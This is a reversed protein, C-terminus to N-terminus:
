AKLWDEEVDELGTGIGHCQELTGGEQQGIAGWPPAMTLAPQRRGPAGGPSEWGHTRSPAGGDQPPGLTVGEISGSAGAGAAVSGVTSGLAGVVLESLRGDELDGPGRSGYHVRDSPLEPRSVALPTCGSIRMGYRLSANVEEGCVAAPYTEFSLQPSCWVTVEMPVHTATEVQSLWRTSEAGGGGAVAAGTTGTTSAGPAGLSDRRAGSAAATSSAALAPSRPARTSGPSAARPGVSSSRPGLRTLRPGPQPGLSPSRVALLKPSAASTIARPSMMAAAAEPSSARRAAGSGSLYNPDPSLVAPGVLPSPPGPPLTAASGLGSGGLDRLGLKREVFHRLPRCVPVEKVLVAQWEGTDGGVSSSTPSSGSSARELVPKGTAPDGSSASPHLSYYALTGARTAVCLRPGAPRQSSAASQRSAAGSVFGCQPMLGEQLVFSGLKVRTSAKILVPAPPVINSSALGGFSGASRPSTAVGFASARPVTPALQATSVDGHHRGLAASHLPPLQFIHTTGKASSVAVHQGDESVTIDSIIAPTYGRELTFLHQFVVGGLAFGGQVDDATLLAHESSLLARHVLVRHGLTAGTVLQLGSPDWTMTEIAEAHDDFQAIVTRNASDRVAVIGCRVAAPAAQQEVGEPPPMLMHDLTRQMGQGLYQLGDRVMSPFRSTGGALLSGVGPVPASQQQPPLNYALWRQGLAFSPCTGACQVSFLAQFHFADYVEVQRQLGVAFYRRSAQLARAPETLRLLHVDDNARMSFLRVLAPAGRHLYALLPAHSAGLSHSEEDNCELPCPLLRALTICKDQKSLLERAMTPDQLDWVQFGDTYGLVLFPRVTDQPWFVREVALWTLHRVDEHIQRTLGAADKINEPLYGSIYTAYSSLVNRSAPPAAM